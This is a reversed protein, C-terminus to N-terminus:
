RNARVRLGRPTVLFEADLLATRWPSEGSPEGDIRQLHLPPRRGAKVADVLATLCPRMKAAHENNEGSGPDRWSLMSKGGREVFLALGASDIVVTAGAKRGPLHGAPSAPWPLAAGYPNAPDTAALVFVPDDPAERRLDDVATGAAFQAAGLGEVFYGRRVRGADEMVSLVRYLAAFGGTVRESAAIGRTVVGHRQMLAEAIGHARATPTDRETPVLFWRGPINDAGFRRIGRGPQTRGHSASSM